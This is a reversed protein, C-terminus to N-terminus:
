DQRLVLLRQRPELTAELGGGAARTSEEATHGAPDLRLVRVPADPPLDSLNVRMARPQCRHNYATRGVLGALLHETFTGVADIRGPVHYPTFDDNGLFEATMAHPYGLHHGYNSTTPGGGMPQVASWDHWDLDTRRDYGCLCEGLYRGNFAQAIGCGVADLWPDPFSYPFMGRDSQEHYDVELVGKGRLRRLVADVAQSEPESLPREGKNRGGTAADERGFAEWADGAPYNRNLDVWRPGYPVLVGRSFTDNFGDINVVPVWAITLRELLARAFADGRAHAHLLWRLYAFVGYTPGWEHAHTCCTLVAAPRDEAQGITLLRLREGRVTPPDLREVRVLRPHRAAWAEVEGIHTAYDRWPAQYQGLDVAEAGLAEVLLLGALDALGGPESELGGLDLAALRADPATRELALIRGDHTQLAVRLGLKVCRSGWDGGRALHGASRWPLVDTPGFGDLFYADNRVVAHTEGPAARYAGVAPELLSALVPLECVVQRGRALESLADFSEVGLEAAQIGLLLLADFSPLDTAERLHAVAHLGAGFHKALRERTRPRAALDGVVLVREAHRLVRSRRSSVRLFQSM